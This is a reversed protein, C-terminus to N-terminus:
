PRHPSVPASVPLTGQPVRADPTTAGSASLTHLAVRGDVAVVLANRTVTLQMSSVDAGVLYTSDLISEGFALPLEFGPLSRPLRVRVGRGGIARLKEIVRDPDMVAGCRLTRDQEEFVARVRAWSRPTLDLPMRVRDQRLASRGVVHGDELTFRMTGSVRHEVEGLTGDLTKRTKFGKCVVWALARPDWEADFRATGRGGVLRLPLDVGLGAPPRRTAM